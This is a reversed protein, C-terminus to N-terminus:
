RVAIKHLVCFRKSLNRWFSSCPPSQIRPLPSSELDLDNKIPGIKVWLM